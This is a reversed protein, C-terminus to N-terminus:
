HTIVSSSADAMNTAVNIWLEVEKVLHLIFVLFEVKYSSSGDNRLAVAVAPHNVVSNPSDTGVGFLM